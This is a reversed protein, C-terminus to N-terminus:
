ENDKINFKEKLKDMGPLDGFTGCQKKEIAAEVKNEQKGEGEMKIGNATSFSILQKRIIGMIQFLSFGSIKQIEEVTSGLGYISELKLKSNLKSIPANATIVHAIAKAFLNDLKETLEEYNKQAEPNFHCHLRDKEMVYDKKFEDWTLKLKNEGIKIVLGEASKNLIPYHQVKSKKNSM